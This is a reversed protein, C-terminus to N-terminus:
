IYSFVSTGINTPKATSTAGTNGSFIDDLINLNTGNDPLPQTTTTVGIENKTSTSGIDLLLDEELLGTQPKETRTPVEWLNADGIPKKISEVELPPITDVIANRVADFGQDLLQLYECARQQVELSPSTTQSDILEKIKDKRQTFKTYLKILCTLAYEKVQESVNHRALVKDVLDVVEEQTVQIPTGDPTTSNGGILTSAYEGICWLGVKALGDQNLNEKLSFFLKSVCYAQLESTASIIHILSNVSEDKVHNGALTLM